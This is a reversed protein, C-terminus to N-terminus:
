KGLDQGAQKVPTEKKLNEVMAGGHGAVIQKKVDEKNFKTQFEGSEALSRVSESLSSVKRNNQTGVTPVSADLGRGGRQVGAAQRLLLIEAAEAYPVKKEKIAKAADKQLKEVRQKVTPMWRKLAPDNELKGAPLSTLHARFLDDLEGGHSFKKTFIAEVKRLGEGKSYKEAFAKFEKNEMIEAARRTLDGENLEQNLTAAKGRTSNSLERAAMIRAIYAAPYNPQRSIAAKNSGLERKYSEIWRAASMDGGNLVHTSAANAYPDQSLEEDLEDIQVKSMERARLLMRNFNPSMLGKEEAYEAVTKGDMMKMKLADSVARIAQKFNEEPNKAPVIKGEENLKPEYRYNALADAAKAIEKYHVRQITPRAYLFRLDKELKRSLETMDLGDIQEDTLPEKDQEEYNMHCLQKGRRLLHPMLLNKDVLDMATKGGERKRTFLADAERIANIFPEMYDKSLRANYAKRLTGDLHEIEEELELEPHKDKIDKAFAKLDNRIMKILESGAVRGTILFKARELPDNQDVKERAEDRDAEVKRDQFSELEEGRKMLAKIEPTLLDSDKLAKSHDRLRFMQDRFVGRYDLEQDFDRLGFLDNKLRKYTEQAQTPKGDVMKAKEQEELNGLAGYLKDYLQQSVEWMDLDSFDFKEEPEQPPEEQPPEEVKPEEVKPEEVKPEEKPPEPEPVYKWEAEELPMKVLEEGRKMLADFDPNLLNNEKAYARISKGKFQKNDLFANLDDLNKKFNKQKDKTKHPNKESGEYEYNKVHWRLEDLEESLAKEGSDRLADYLKDLRANLYGGAHHMKMGSIEENTLVHQQAGNKPM